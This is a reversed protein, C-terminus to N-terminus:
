AGPKPTTSSAKRAQQGPTNSPSAKLEAAYDLAFQNAATAFRAIVDQMKHCKEPDLYQCDRDMYLDRSFEIQLSHRNEKPKGHQRVLAAGQFPDNLAVSFGEKEFFEKVFKRSIRTDCSKGKRDGIVIDALDEQRFRKMSHMNFHICLGHEQHARDLLQGLKQYYPKHYSEIRKALEAASPQTKECFVPTNRNYAGVHTPFLGLGIKAYPTARRRGNWKDKIHHKEFEYDHRNLDIVARHIQAELVPIGQLPIKALLKEVHMDYSTMLDARTCVYEFHDPLETGSHPSDFVVPSTKWGPM